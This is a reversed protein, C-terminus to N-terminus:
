KTFVKENKINTPNYVCKNMLTTGLIFLKVKIMSQKM